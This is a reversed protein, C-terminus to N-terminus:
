WDTMLCHKCGNGSCKWCIDADIIIEDREIDDEYHDHEIGHMSDIEDASFQAWYHNM